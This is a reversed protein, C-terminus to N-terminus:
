PEITAGDPVGAEVQTSAIVRSKRASGVWVGSLLQRLSTLGLNLYSYALGGRRRVYLTALRALDEGPRVIWGTRVMEQQGPEVGMIVLDVQFRQGHQDEFGRNAGM